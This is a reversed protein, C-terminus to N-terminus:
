CVRPLRLGPRSTAPLWAHQLRPLAAGQQRNKKKLCFVAYSISPHSPESTHEESRTAGPPTASAVSGSSDIETGDTTAGGASTLAGTMTSFAVDTFPRAPRM